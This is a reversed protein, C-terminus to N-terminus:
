KLLVFKGCIQRDSALFSYIFIGSDFLSRPVSIQNTGSIGEEWILRGSIDFISLSSNMNPFEELSFTIRNSGISLKISPSITNINEASMVYGSPYCEDFRDNKFMLNGSELFCVMAWGGGVLGVNNAGELIGHSSGVGEIWYAEIIGGEKVFSFDIRKLSDEFSELYVNYVDAAYVYHGFHTLISDGKELNFDYLLCKTDDRHLFVKNSKDERIAGYPYWNDQFESDSSYIRMYLTDAITTDGEFKIWNTNYRSGPAIVYYTNSWIRDPLVLSQAFVSMSQLVIGVLILSKFRM